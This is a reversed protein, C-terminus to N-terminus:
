AVISEMFLTPSAQVGEDDEIVLSNRKLENIYTSFSSSSLSVDSRGAVEERSLKQPYAEFVVRLMRRAGDRFRRSWTEMLEGPDTSLPPVNGAEALGQETITVGRPDERM